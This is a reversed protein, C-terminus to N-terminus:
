SRRGTKAIESLAYEYITNYAGTDTISYEKMLKGVLTHMAQILAADRALKFLERLPNDSDLTNALASSVTTTNDEVSAAREFVSSKPYGNSRLLQRIASPDFRKLYSHILNYVKDAETESQSSNTEHTQRPM